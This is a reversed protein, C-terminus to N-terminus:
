PNRGEHIATFVDAWEDDTFDDPRRLWLEPARDEDHAYRWAPWTVEDVSVYAEERGTWVSLQDGKRPVDHFTAVAEHPDGANPSAGKVNLNVM